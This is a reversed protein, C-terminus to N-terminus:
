PAVEELPDPRRHSIEDPKCGLATVLRAFLHDSPEAGRELENIWQRHCGVRQALHAASLGRNKRLAALKPGDIIRTKM